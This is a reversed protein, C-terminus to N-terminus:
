RRRRRQRRDYRTQREIAELEDWTPPPGGTVVRGTPNDEPAREAIRVSTAQPGDDGQHLEYEVVDGPRLIDVGDVESAHVFVDRGGDLPQVFGFNGEDDFVKVRGTPM